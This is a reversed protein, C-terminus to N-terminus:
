HPSFHFHCHLNTYLPFICAILSTHRLLPSSMYLSTELSTINWWMLFLRTSTVVFVSVVAGTVSVVAGTVSVVAGTVSVVAGTVSVVAGTVSVVAGTLM